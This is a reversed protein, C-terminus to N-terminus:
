LTSPPILKGPESYTAMDVQLIETFLDKVTDEWEETSLAGNRTQKRAEDLLQDVYVWFQEDKWVNDGYELASNENAPREESGQLAILRRFEILASRLFAIRAWHTLTMDMLGAPVLSKALTAINQKKQIGTWLKFLSPNKELMDFVHDALDTIYATLDPSLLRVRLRDNLLKWFDVSELHVLVKNRESTCFATKLSILHCKIDMLMKVDTALEAFKDLTRPPLKHTRCLDVGLSKLRKVNERVLMDEASDSCPWSTQAQSRSPTSPTSPLFLLNDGSNRTPTLSSSSTVRSSMLGSM